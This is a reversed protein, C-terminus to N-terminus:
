VSEASAQVCEAGVCDEFQITIHHIGFQHELDHQLKPLFAPAAAPWPLVLHATLAVETTSMSWIHLDHVERVQPLAALFAEVNKPDIHPPVADLLLNLAERLLKWTGVLIVASVVLSTVPDIWAWGTRWVVIGAVVVGASVAADAVLHLFAGRINIDKERGKAFMLASGANLVVGIAAVIAVLGGNVAPADGLRIVAEWVVGGVAVLVLGGNALAALITTRRLGYTRRATTARRVLVTAGFAMALGLVDGMNHAADALLATSHAAIGAIVGIVVFIINLTIGVVFAKTMRDPPAHNHGGGHGREHAHEAM